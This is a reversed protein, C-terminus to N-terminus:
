VVGFVRVLWGEEGGGGRVGLGKGGRVLWVVL